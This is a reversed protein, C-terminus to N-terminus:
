TMIVCGIITASVEIITANMKKITASVEIIAESVEIIAESVEKLHNELAARKTYSDSCLPCM